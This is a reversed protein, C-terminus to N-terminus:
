RKTAVVCVQRRPRPFLWFVRSALVLGRVGFVRFIGSWRGPLRERIEFAEKVDFGACSVLNGINNVSWSYLHFDRDAHSYSYSAMDAPVVIVLKGNKKLKENLDRLEKLPHEVHELAHNSIVVDFDKKEVQDTKAVVNVGNKEAEARAHENIEVGYRGAVGLEQLVFGGGCGFDLVSEAGKVHERFYRSIFAAKAPGFKSQDQFYASDYHTEPSAYTEAHM